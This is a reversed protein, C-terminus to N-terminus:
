RRSSGAPAPASRRSTRSRAARASATRGRAAVDVEVREPQDEVADGRRDARDVEDDRDELQARGAHRQVAHREEAERDERRRKASIKASGGSVTSRRRGRAAACARSGSRRRRRVAALRQEPLVEEPDEAVGLDVDDDQGGEPDRRRDDRRERPAPHDREREDRHGLQEDREDAEADPRVVHERGPEGVVVSMKKAAAEIITTIGDVIWIKAHSIVTLSRCASAEVRRQEEDAAEDDEEHDAAQGPDHERRDREVLRSVSVYKTTACKWKMM